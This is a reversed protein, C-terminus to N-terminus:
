RATAPGPGAAEHTGDHSRRINPRHYRLLRTRLLSLLLVNCSVRLAVCSPRCAALIAEYPRSGSPTWSRCIASRVVDASQYDRFVVGYPSLVIFHSCCYEWVGSQVPSAQITWRWGVVCSMQHTASCTSSRGKVTAAVTGIQGRQPEVNTMISWSSSSRSRWRADDPPIGTKLRVAAHAVTTPSLHSNVALLYVSCLM